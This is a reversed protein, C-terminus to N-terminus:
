VNFINLNLYNIFQSDVQINKSSILSYMVMEASLPDDFLSSVKKEFNLLVQHTKETMPASERRFVNAKLESIFFCMQNHYFQEGLSNHFEDVERLELNEKFFSLFGTVEYEKGLHLTNSDSFSYVLVPIRDQIQFSQKSSENLSQWIQHSLEQSKTEILLLYIQLDGLRKDM